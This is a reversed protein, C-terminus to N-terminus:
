TKPQIMKGNPLDWPKPGEGKVDKKITMYISLAEDMLDEEEFFNRVIPIAKDAVLMAVQKHTLTVTRSVVKGKSNSWSFTWEDDIDKIKESLRMTQEPDLIYLKTDM